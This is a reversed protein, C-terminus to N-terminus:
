RSALDKITQRLIKVEIELEKIREKLAPTEIDVVETNQSSVPDAFPLTEAIERFFNYQLIESLDALRQVQLTPRTLMGHVSSPNFNLKRAIDAGTLHKRNLERLIMQKLQIKEMCGFVITKYAFLLSKITNFM